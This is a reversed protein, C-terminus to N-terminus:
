LCLLSYGDLEADELIVEIECAKEMRFVDDCVQGDAMCMLQGDTFKLYIDYPLEKDKVDCVLCKKGDEYKVWVVARNGKKRGSITYSETFAGNGKLKRKYQRRRERACRKCAGIVIQPSIELLRGVSKLSEGWLNIHKSLTFGYCKVQCRVAQLGVKGKAMPYTFDM